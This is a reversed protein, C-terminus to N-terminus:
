PNGAVSPNWGVLQPLNRECQHKLGKLFEEAPDDGYARKSWAKLLVGDSHASDDYINWEVIIKEDSDPHPSRLVSLLFDLVVSSKDSEAQMLVGNAVPDGASRRALVEDLKRQALALTSAGTRPLFDLIAMRM